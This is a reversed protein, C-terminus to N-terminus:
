PQNRKRRAIALRYNAELALWFHAPVGLAYELEIATQETIRAKAHIIENITKGEFLEKIIQM